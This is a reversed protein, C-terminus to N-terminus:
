RQCKDVIASQVSISHNTTRAYNEIKNLKIQMEKIEEEIAASARIGKRGKSKHKALEENLITIRLSYLLAGVRYSGIDWGYHLLTDILREELTDYEDSLCTAYFKITSSKLELSVKIGCRIVCLCGNSDAIEKPTATSYARNFIQRPTYM